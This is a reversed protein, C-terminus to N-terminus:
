AFRAGTMRESLAWLKDALAADIAWPRVGSFEKSDAAV